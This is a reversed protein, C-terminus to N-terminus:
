QRFALQATQSKTLWQRLLLPTIVTTVMGVLLLASYLGQDVLGAHYAISAVVMEMVGRANMIAGVALADQHPLKKLRAMVYGGLLKSAIAVLVLGVVLSANDLTGLQFQIGQYALFLPGFLSITVVECTRELKEFHADSILDRTIMLAAFFAGIVFHFGLLESLAGFAFTFLLTAILVNDSYKSNINRAARLASLRLCAFHCIGVLALLAVLKTMSIGAVPLWSGSSPTVLSVAVGLAVLVIVDSMLASAIAVRAISTDLMGFSSLIRLAVPLATVSLCLTVVLGPILAMGMLWAFAGATATPIAFGVLLAFSSKGRFVDLVHQMRMELGAAVVVFLVALDSIAAFTPGAQMWNLVSPGLVIGALMHGVLAPQRLREAVWGFLHAGFLMLCLGEILTM